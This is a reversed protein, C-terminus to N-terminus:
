DALALLSGEKGQLYKLLVEVIIERAVHRYIVVEGVATPLIFVTEEGMRKKDQKLAALVDEEPLDPPAPKIGVRAFLNLLREAEAASLLALKKAIGVAMVMGALVAEGHLYYQFSTAAELAHGLTHGFNLIARRGTEREDEAVVQAKLNCCTAIIRQLVSKDQQIFGEWKEELLTIFDTSLIAGYKVVEAAGAMFERPPLTQLTDLEIWVLKPQYFAGILNKGLRHNVAVKGGVSSDVQALLTTPIQVFPVGRLYTAAVFGALDGVVGGGLAIVANSRDLGAEIAVTYLRDAEALTKSAEGPTIIVPVVTYSDKLASEVCSGYHSWVHEDSVLLVKGPPLVKVLTAALRQWSNSAIKIEYSREKLDVNISQM